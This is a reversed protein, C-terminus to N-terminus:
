DLFFVIGVTWRVFVGRRGFNTIKSIIIGFNCDRIAEDLQHYRTIVFVLVKSIKSYKTKLLEANKYHCSTLRPKYIKSQHRNEYDVDISM